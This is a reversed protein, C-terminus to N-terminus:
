DDTDVKNLLAFEGFQKLAERNYALAAAHESHFRGVHIHKYHAMVQVRWNKTVKDWVVGKYKSTKNAAKRCNGMNQANTCPRLNKKRNDAGFHNIHDVRQNIGLVVRHMSVYTRIRRKRFERVAYYTNRKGPQYRWKFKSLKEYDEADVIAFKGRTLSILKAGEALAEAILKEEQTKLDNDNDIADTM